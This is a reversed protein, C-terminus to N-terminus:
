EDSDEKVKNIIDLIDNLSDYRVQTGDAVADPNILTNNVFQM